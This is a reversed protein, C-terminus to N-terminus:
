LKCHFHFDAFAISQPHRHYELIAVLVLGRRWQMEVSEYLLHRCLFLSDQFILSVEGSLQLGIVISGAIKFIQLCSKQLCITQYSLIINICLLVIVPKRCFWEVIVSCRVNFSPLMLAMALLPTVKETIVSKEVAKLLISLQKAIFFGWDNSKEIIDRSKHQFQKDSLGCFNFTM